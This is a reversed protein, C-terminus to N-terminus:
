EVGKEAVRVDVPVFGNEKWARKVKEATKGDFCVAIACDGGGAGSFKGAAGCEVALDALRALEPTELNNKSKDSLVKLLARNEDLMAMAMKKDNAKLAGILQETTRKIANIVNWYDKENEKKFERIKLVLEKTSASKGTWGVCLRFDPPLVIPEAYYGKWESDVIEPLPKRSEVEKLLWEADFRRYVTANGFVSACIDFGSGIKGQGLFHALAALKYVSDKGSRSSVDVGHLKLVAAVIAVVAAASSGFGIKKKEGNPLSVSSIASSTEVSFPKVAIGRGHLFKLATEIAAKPLLIAERQTEDLVGTWSITNEAITGKVRNLGVDPAHLEFAKSERATASVRSDVALVICPVGNELVSWEGSLMLKGPASVTVEIM